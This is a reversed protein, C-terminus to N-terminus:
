YASIGVAQLGRGSATELVSAMQESTVDRAIWWDNAAGTNLCVVHYYPPLADTVAVAVPMAGKGRQSELLADFDAAQNWLSTQVSFSQNITAFLGSVVPQGARTHAAIAAPIRRAQTQNRLEALFDDGPLASLLVWETGQDPAFVAAFVEDGSESVCSALGVPMLGNNRATVALSSLQDRSLRPYAVWSNPDDSASWIVGYRLGDPRFAPSLALCQRGQERASSLAATIQAETLDIEVTSAPRGAQFLICYRVPSVRTAAFDFQHTLTGTWTVSGVAVHGVERTTDGQKLTFGHGKYTVVVPKGGFGGFFRDSVEPNEDGNTPDCPIWGVEPLYFEAWQHWPDKEGIVAGGCARAPIGAARCLAVFLHSYAMCNGVRQQLMQSADLPRDRTYTCSQMVYDFAARARAVPHPIDRAFREGIAAIAPDDAAIDKSNGTFKRYPDSTTDYEPYGRAALAQMDYRPPHCNVSYRVSLTASTGPEKIELRALCLENGEDLLLQTNAPEVVLNSVTQMPGSLPIPMLIEARRYDGTVRGTQVAEFSGAYEFQAQAHAAFVCALTMLAVLLRSM